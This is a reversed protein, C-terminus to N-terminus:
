ESTGEITKNPDFEPVQTTIRQYKAYLKDIAEGFDYDKATITIKDGSHQMELSAVWENDFTGCSIYAFVEKSEGMEKLKMNTSRSADIM